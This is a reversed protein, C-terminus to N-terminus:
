LIKPPKKNSKYFIFGIVSFIIEGSLVVPSTKRIVMADNKTTPRNETSNPSEEPFITIISGRM